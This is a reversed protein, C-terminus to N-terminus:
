GINVNKQVFTITHVLVTIHFIAKICKLNPVKHKLDETIM